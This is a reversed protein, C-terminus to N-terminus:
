RVPITDLNKLHDVSIMINIAFKEFSSPKLTDNSWMSSQLNIIIITIIIIIYNHDIKNLFSPQCQREKVRLVHAVVAAGRGVRVAVVSPRDVQLHALVFVFVFVEDAKM